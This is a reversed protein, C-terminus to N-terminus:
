LIGKYMFLLIRQYKLYFDLKGNLFGRIEHWLRMSSLFFRWVYMHWQIPFAHHSFSFSSYVKRWSRSALVSQPSGRVTAADCISVSFDIGALAQFNVILQGGLSVIIVVLNGQRISIIMIPMKIDSNSTCSFFSRPPIISVWIICHSIHM